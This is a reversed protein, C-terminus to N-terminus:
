NHSGSASLRSSIFSSITEVTRFNEITVDAPEVKISFETEVYFVLRMVGLSDVLGSLLLDTVPSVEEDSGDAVFEARIFEVLKDQM